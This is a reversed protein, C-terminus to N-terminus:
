AKKAAHKSCKGDKCCDAGPDCCATGETKACCSAGKACTGAKCCDDGKTCKGGACCDAKAATRDYKCCEHLNAYAAETAKVEPTDYGASAVSQQVKVSNTAAPNYSIVLKKTDPSWSAFAAGASKAATEIKKKCMGCVGAVDLTDSQTTQAFSVSSCAVIFLACFFAKFTKMIIM